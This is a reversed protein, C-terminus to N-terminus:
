LTTEHEHEIPQFRGDAFTFMTNVDSEWGEKGLRRNFEEKPIRNGAVTM